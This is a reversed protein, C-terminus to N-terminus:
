TRELLGYAVLTEVTDRLDDRDEVVFDTMAFHGRALLAQLQPALDPALAIATEAIRLQPQEGVPDITFLTDPRVRLTDGEDLGGALAVLAGRVRPGQLLVFNSGMAAVTNQFSAKARVEDMLRHFIAANEAQRGEGFFLSRPLSHRTEPIRLSAEAVAELIFEAWTQVLIGVTIHLSPERGENVARHALGRPVYLCQGPELVFEAQLPGPDDRERSFKEGRFPLGERQGYIEWKKRGSVQLVLVDHDDYHIAFGSANRPTLYINTQIRAGFDRELGLCFAYLKGDAFHLQPLVITAGERFNGIVAGRDVAGNAHLYEEAPIARGSKVMSIASSPLESDSIIEDIRDITLLEDPALVPQPTLYWQREYYRAFFDETSLPAILRALLGSSADHPVSPTHPM